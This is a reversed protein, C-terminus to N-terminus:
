KHLGCEKNEPNEWWWRGAREHEGPKVPRTCPQCGISKYGRDYLKNYPLQKEKVYQLVQEESWRVLPNIKIIGNLEDWEAEKAAYRTISQQQRIGTIWVKKQQLIKKLPKTKRINCCLRRFEVSKYFLNIGYQNVMQEVEQADPFLVKIKVGLINETQEILEYTEPFLRGTDLTVIEIGPQIKSILHTIIQDENSLSTTFVIETAQFKEAVYSIIEEPKKEKLHNQLEDAKNKM